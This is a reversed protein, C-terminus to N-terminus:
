HGVDVEGVSFSELYALLNDLKEEDSLGWFIM